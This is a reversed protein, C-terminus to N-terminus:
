NLAYIKRYESVSYGTMKKFWISLYHADIIGIKTGIDRDKMNTENIYRIMMSLRIESVIDSYNRGVYHKLIRGFHSSSINFRTALGYQNMDYDELNARRYEIAEKVLNYQPDKETRDLLIRTMVEEVWWILEEKNHYNKVPNDLEIKNFNSGVKNCVEQLILSIRKTSVEFSVEDDMECIFNKMMARAEEAKGEQIDKVFNLELEKYSAKDPIDKESDNTESHNKLLLNIADLYANRLEKFGQFVNSVASMIHCNFKSKILEVLMELCQEMPFDSNKSIIVIRGWADRLTYLNTESSFFSRVENEVLMPLNPNDISERMALLGVRIMNDLSNMVVGLEALKRDCDEDPMDNSLLKNFYVNQLVPISNKLKDEEMRREMIEDIVHSVAVKLEDSQVPKLLYDSVGARISRRAYDFDDFGTIIIIKIDPFKDIVSQSFCIGDEGPMCIDSLVIDPGLEEVAKMASVADGYEGVIELELGLAEIKMRILKRVLMEDDVIIIKLKGM